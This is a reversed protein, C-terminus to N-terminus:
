AYHPHNTLGGCAARAPNSTTLLTFLLGVSFSMANGDAAAQDSSDQLLSGLRELVSIGRPGGGVIAITRM